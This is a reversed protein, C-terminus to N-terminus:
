PSVAMALETNGRMAAEAAEADGRRVADVIARRLRLSAARDRPRPAPQQGDGGIFHQLVTMVNLIPENGTIAALRRHFAWEMGEAENQSLGPRASEDTLRRLEAVDAETAVEAVRRVAYHQLASLLEVLQARGRPSVALATRVLKLCGGLSDRDGVFMGVGRRVKVLGLSELRSIAERLVPRSVELSQVLEAETPLRQGPELGKTEIVERLLTVVESVLSSRRIPELTEPM